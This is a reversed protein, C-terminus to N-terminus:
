KARQHHQCQLTKLKLFLIFLLSIIGISCILFFNINSNVKSRYYQIFNKEDTITLSKIDISDVTGFVNRHYLTSDNLYVYSLGNPFEMNEFLNTKLLKGTLKDFIEYRSKQADTKHGILIYKNSEYIYDGRSLGLGYNDNSKFEFLNKYEFNSLDIEGFSYHVYNYESDPDYKSHHNLLVMLKNEFNWAHVVKRADFPYNTIKQEDWGNLKPNFYILKTFFNFLGEGGYSYIVDNYLFLIRKFNHGHHQSNSLKVVSPVTDLKIEFLHLTGNPNYILTSDNKFLISKFFDSTFNSLNDDVGFSKIQQHIKFTDIPNPNQSFGKLFFFLLLLGFFLQKSQM